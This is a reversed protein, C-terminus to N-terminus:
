HLHRLSKVRFSTHLASSLMPVGTAMFATNDAELAHVLMHLSHPHMVADDDLCLVYKHEASAAQLLM